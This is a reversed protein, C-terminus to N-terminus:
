DLIEILDKGAKFFPIKKPASKVRKGTKPNIGSYGKYNRLEFVGFGRLEVKRGELLAEKICSFFIEVLEDTKGVDFDNFRAEQLVKSLSQVFQTRNM